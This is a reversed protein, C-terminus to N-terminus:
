HNHTNVIPATLSTLPDHAAVAARVRDHDRSAIADVLSRHLEVNQGARFRRDPTM